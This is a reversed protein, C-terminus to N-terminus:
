SPALPVVSGLDEAVRGTVGSRYGEGSALYPVYVIDAAVDGTAVGEVAALGQARLERLLAATPPPAPLFTAQAGVDLLLSPGRARMTALLRASEAADLKGTAASVVAEQEGWPTEVPVVWHPVFAVRKVASLGGADLVQAVEPLLAAHQALVRESRSGPPESLMRHALMARTDREKLSLVTWEEGSLAREDIARRVRDLEEMVISREELSAAARADVRLANLRQEWRRAARSTTFLLAHSADRELLRRLRRADAASGRVLLTPAPPVLARTTSLTLPETGPLRVSLERGRREVAAGAAALADALAAPEAHARLRDDAPRARLALDLLLLGPLAAGEAWRALVGLGARSWSPRALTEDDRVLAELLTRPGVARSGSTEWALHLARTRLGAYLPVLLLVGGFALARLGADSTVLFARLHLGGWYLVHGAVALALAATAAGAALGSVARSPRRLDVLLLVLAALALPLAGLAVRPGSALLALIGALAWVVLLGSGLAVRRMLRAVEEASAAPPGRRPADGFRPTRPM